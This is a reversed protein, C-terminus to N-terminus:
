HIQKKVHSMSSSSVWDCAYNFIFDEKKLKKSVDLKAEVYSHRAYVVTNLPFKIM